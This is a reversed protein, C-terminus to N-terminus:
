PLARGGSQRWRARQRVIEFVPGIRVNLFRECLAVQEEAFDSSFERYCPVAAFVQSTLDRSWTGPSMSGDDIKGSKARMVIDLIAMEPNIPEMALHSAILHKNAPVLLQRRKSLLGIFESPEIKALLENPGSLPDLASQRARPYWKKLHIVALVAILVPVHLPSILLLFLIATPRLRQSRETYKKDLACNISLLCVACVGWYVALWGFGGM